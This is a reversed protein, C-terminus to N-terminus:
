LQQYLPNIERLIHKNKIIKEYYWLKNKYRTSFENQVCSDDTCLHIFDCTSNDILKYYYSLNRYIKTHDGGLMALFLLSEQSPCNM